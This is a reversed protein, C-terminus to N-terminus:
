LVAILCRLHRIERCKFFTSYVESSPVLDSAQWVQDQSLIHVNYLRSFDAFAWTWDDSSFAVAINITRPTPKSATRSGEISFRSPIVFSRVLRAREQNEEPTLKPNNSQGPIDTSVIERYVSTPM